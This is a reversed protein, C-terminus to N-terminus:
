ICKVETGPSMLKFIQEVNIKVSDSAFGADRFVVRLPARKALLKVFDENIGTEFCAALANDDVFFVPKGDMTEQTIPLALDVGWDLLVQFLLDEATRDERINNVQDSLLDQSVADPTYYVEKMNSSDIKLVRFGNDLDPNSIAHEEKIKKGARRIRDKGIAAITKHGAKFAASAEDCLAPLQVMVFKRKGGDHANLSMVAHATTASGSFFDLAISEPETCIWGIAREMIQTSKETDFTSENGSLLIDMWNDSLLKGENPPVYYQISGEANKRVFNLSVNTATLTDLYWEDISLNQAHKDVYAQYNNVAESTRGEEWRWQGTKPTFGFLEYRMTPRDTGRWFTDWKGPQTVGHSLILKKFRVDPNRTYVLMYEHGLSLSSVDDFQAQVNKIGRRVIITNKYCSSGFIEDMISRLNAVENNDISILIVGDPKLLNKALKLRSYMMTLWDSHFRGNSETNAALRNGSEDKQNSREFYSASDEAFDDEYIFDNGTNYPPDIYIMKVKNLYTEQLLKLADLNDGEIFLNQTTDFDVSEERCPRLTKAIPANATLLAERKGPWNLQYREQPGEVITASLEQRLQDFDVSRSLVGKADLAETVCNPFLESIAALKDINAQTLDPSHLKLKQMDAKIM